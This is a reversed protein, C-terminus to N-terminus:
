GENKEGKEAWAWIERMTCDHGLVQKAVEIAELRNNINGGIDNRIVVKAEEETMGM